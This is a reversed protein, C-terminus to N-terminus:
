FLEITGQAAHEDRAARSLSRAGQIPPLVMDLLERQAASILRTRLKACLAAWIDDGAGVDPGNALQEAVSSLYVQVHGLHQVMRDYFQLQTISAHLQAQLRRIVCDENDPSVSVAESGRACTRATRLAGLGEAMDAILVSLYEVPSQVERAALEIQAVAAAIAQAADINGGAGAPGDTYAPSTM